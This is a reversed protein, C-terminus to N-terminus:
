DFIPFFQHNHQVPRAKSSKFESVPILSYVSLCQMMIGYGSEITEGYDLGKRTM